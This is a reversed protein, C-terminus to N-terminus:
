VIISSTVINIIDVDQTTKALEATYKAYLACQLLTTCLDASDKKFTV